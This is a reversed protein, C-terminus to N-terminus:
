KRPLDCDRQSQAALWGARFRTTAGLNEMLATVRRSFTRQSMDLEHKITKDNLGSALLALLQSSDDGMGHMASGVQFNGSDDFGFPTATRWFVEFLECLALLLSSSRVILCPGAASDLNLPVVGVRRDVVLLKFPLGSFIRKQEGVAAEERLRATVGPVHLLSSDTVTRTKVGRGLSHVCADELATAPSILLPLRELCLIETKAAEVMQSVASVSAHSSLVEVLREDARLAAASAVARLQAIASRTHHLESQRRDILAEVGIDAPVAFYRRIRAPAHTILGKEELSGLARGVTTRSLRLDSVLEALIAGDRTLLEIYIREEAPTVGLGSLLGARVFASSKM